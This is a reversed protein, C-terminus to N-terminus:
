PANVGTRATIYSRLLRHQVVEALTLQKLFETKQAIADRTSYGRSRPHTVGVSSDGVVLKNHSFAYAAAMDDIGWGYINGSYDARKMRAIVPSSLAFVIADTQAVISLSAPKISVIQMRPINLFTGDILPTWVGVQPNKSLASRCKRVLAAWDDCSCDAHIVLMFDANCADLCARFKDGWFLENPRKILDAHSSLTRAPDPDSYVISVKDAVNNVEDAVAVANDHQGAWSVVFVHLTQM